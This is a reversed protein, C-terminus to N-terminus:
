KSTYENIIDEKHIEKSHKESTPDFNKKWCEDSHSIDVLKFDSVSFLDDLMDDIFRKLELPLNKIVKDISADYEMAPHYNHYVNLVVPGYVWAEIRDEFLWPKLGTSSQEVYEKNNKLRNVFGGWYAFLFYLSKQLKINSIETQFKDKYEKAIYIALDLASLYAKGM